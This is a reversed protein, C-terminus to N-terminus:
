DLHACAPGSVWTLSFLHSKIFITMDEFVILVFIFLTWGWLWLKSVRGPPPVL